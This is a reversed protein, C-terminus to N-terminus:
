WACNTMPQDPQREEVEPKAAILPNLPNKGAAQGEWTTHPTPMPAVNGSCNPHRSRGAGSLTTNCKESHRGFKGASFQQGQIPQGAAAFVQSDPALAVALSEPNGPFSRRFNDTRGCGTQLVV